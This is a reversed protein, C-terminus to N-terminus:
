DIECRPIGHELNLSLVVDLLAPLCDGVNMLPARQSRQADMDMTFNLGLRCLQDTARLAYMLSPAIYPYRRATALVQDVDLRGDIHLLKLHCLTKISSDNLIANDVYMRHLLSWAMTHDALAKVATGAIKVEQTDSWWYEEDPKVRTGIDENLLNLSYHLDVSVKAHLVGDIVCFLYPFVRQAADRSAELAPIPVLRDYPACQGYSYISQESLRTVKSPMKRVRGADIRLDPEYGLEELASRAASLHRKRILLDIDHSFVPVKTAILSELAMGKLVVSPVGSEQLATSISSLELQQLWRMAEGVERFVSFEGGEAALEQHWSHSSLVAGAIGKKATYAFVAPLGVQQVIESFRERDWGTSQFPFPGLTSRILDIRESAGLMHKDAM